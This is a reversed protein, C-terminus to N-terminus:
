SGSLLEGLSLHYFAALQQLMELSPQRLDREYNSYTQRCVHLADAVQQQTLNRETRLTYLRPGLSSRRANM